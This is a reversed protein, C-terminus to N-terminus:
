RAMEACTISVGYREFEKEQRYLPIANVYKANIIAAEISPSVLSNRLLYKPHRAKKLHRDKKSEYVGVHHEEVQIKAPTFKYRNYVEDELQTWGDEGFKNKLEEDSMMHNVKIVPLNKIDEARKGTTKKSDKKPTDPDTPKDMAAVAEAENFFIITGNEERFAIQDATDMKESSKGFKNNKLVVLQELILQMKRDLENLQGQQMLFLQILTNKDFSNLQEETYDITM